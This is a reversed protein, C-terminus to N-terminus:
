GHGDERRHRPGLSEPASPARAAVDPEDDDRRLWAGLAHSLVTLLIVGAAGIGAGYGPVSAGIALDALVGAGVAAVLVGLVRLPIM